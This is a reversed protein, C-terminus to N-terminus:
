SDGDRDLDEGGIEVMRAGDAVLEVAKGAARQMGTGSRDGATRLTQPDRHLGADQPPTGAVVIDNPHAALKPADPGGTITSPAEAGPANSRAATPTPGDVHTARAQPLPADINPGAAHPAPAHPVGGMPATASPADVDVDVRTPADPTSKRGGSGIRTGAASITSAAATTAIRELAWEAQGRALGRDFADTVSAGGKLATRYEAVFAGISQGSTQVGTEILVEKAQTILTHQGTNRMADRLATGTPSGSTGPLLSSVLSTIVVQPDTISKYAAGGAARIAAMTDGGNSAADFGAVWASSMASNGIDFGMKIAREAVGSVIVKTVPSAISAIPGGMAGLIAGPGAAIAAGVFGEGFGKVGENFAAHGIDAGSKGTVGTVTGNEDRSLNFNSMSWQSKRDFEAQEEPSLKRDLTPKGDPGVTAMGFGPVYVQRGANAKDAATAGNFNGETLNIAGERALLEGAFYATGSISGGIVGAVLMVALPGGLGGTAVTIAVAAVVALGVIIASRWPGNWFDVFGKTFSAPLMAMLKKAISACVEFFANASDIVFQSVASVVKQALGLVAINSDFYARAVTAALDFSANVADAAMAFAQDITEARALYAAEVTRLANAQSRDVTALLQKENENVLEIAQQAASQIQKEVDAGTKIVAAEATVLAQHVRDRYGRTANDIKVALDKNVLAIADILGDAIANFATHLSKVLQAVRTTFKSVTSSLTKALKSIVQRVMQSAASIVTRVTNAVASIMGQIGNRVTLLARQVAQRATHLASLAAARAKEMISVVLDRAQALLNKAADLLGNVGDRVVGIVKDVTGANKKQDAEARKAAAAKEGQAKAQDAQQQGARIEQTYNREGEQTIAAVQRDGDTTARAVDAQLRSQEGAVRTRMADNQQDVQANAQQNAQETASRAEADSAQLHANFEAQRQQQETLAHQEQQQRQQAAATQAATQETALTTAAGSRAAQEAAMASAQQAVFENRAADAQSGYADQAAANSSQQQTQATAVAAVADSAAAVAAQKLKARERAIAERHPVQATQAQALAAAGTIQPQQAKAADVQGRAAAVQQDSATQTKQQATATDRDLQQAVTSTAAQMQAPAQANLQATGQQEIQAIAAERSPVGHHKAGNTAPVATQPAVFTPATLNTLQSAQAKVQAYQADANGRAAGVEVDSVTPLAAVQNQRQADLSTFQAANIAPLNQPLRATAQAGINTVQPSLAATTASGVATRVIAGGTAIPANLTAPSQAVPGPQSTAVQRAAAAQQTMTAIQQAAQNGITRSSATAAAQASTGQTRGGQVASTRPADASRETQRLAPTLANLQANMQANADSAVRSAGAAEARISTSAASRDDQLSVNAPVLNAPNPPTASAARAVAPVKPATATQLPTRAVGPRAPTAAVAPAAQAAPMATASSGTPANLAASPPRSPILAATAPTSVPANRAISQRPVVVSAVNANSVPARRATPQSTPLAAVNRRRPAAATAAAVPVLTPAVVSPASPMPLPMSGLLEDVPIAAPMQEDARGRIEVNPQTLTGPGPESMGVPPATVTAPMVNNGAITFDGVPMRSSARASAAQSDRVVNLARAGAPSASALSELARTDGADTHSQEHGSALLRDGLKVDYDHGRDVSGDRNKEIYGSADAVLKLIKGHAEGAAGSTVIGDAAREIHGTLNGSLPGLKARAEGTASATVAGDAARAANGTVQAQLPGADLQAAGQVDSTWTGDAARAANGTVQAQLPGADLQAAGQVDSTWTGDGARAANGSVQAQVPGADLQAAAHVDSTWTGNADRAANGSVQAQVPGADLQA